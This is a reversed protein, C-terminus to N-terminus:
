ISRHSSSSFLQNKKQNQSGVFSSDRLTSSRTLDLIVHTHHVKYLTLPTSLQPKQSILEKGRRRARKQKIYITRRIM